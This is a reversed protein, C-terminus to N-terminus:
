QAIITAVTLMKMLWQTDAQAALKVPLGWDSALDPLEAKLEKDKSNYFEIMGKHAKAFATLQQPQQQISRNSYKGEKEELMIEMHNNRIKKSKMQPIKRRKRKNSHCIPM